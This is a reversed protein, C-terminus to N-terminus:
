PRILVTVITRWYKVCGREIRNVKHRREEERLANLDDEQIEVANMSEELEDLSSRVRGMWEGGMILIAQALSQSSNLSLMLNRLFQGGVGGM